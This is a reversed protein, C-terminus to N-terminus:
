GGIRVSTPQCELIVAHLRFDELAINPNTMQDDNMTIRIQIANGDVALYQPRWVRDQYQDFPYYTPDYPSTELVGSSMLQGPIATNLTSFKSTNPYYDVQVQGGYPLQTNPDIGGTRDVLFTMKQIFVNQGQKVYPNWQKSLININSVRAVTGTGLYTSGGTFPFAAVTITNADVISQIPTIVGNLLPFSGTGQINELLVYEDQNTNIDVDTLNHNYITLTVVDGLSTANAIELAGANRTLDPDILLVYGEQNGGIVFRFNQQLSGDAWTQTMNQWLETINGWTAAPGQTFYGFSTFSDTNYSWSETIYNYVAVQNPFVSSFPQSVGIFPICWYVQESKYDRIGEIRDAGNNVYQIDFVDDPINEDIRTVANGTCKTFGNQAIDLTKEDFPVPSFTSQSGFEANLQQWAFPLQQNGTYVLEWKSRAFGVILRDKLFEASVIQEQTQLNDIYGGGRFWPSNKNDIWPLYSMNVTANGTDLPTGSAACYRARNQYLFTNGNQVEITNLMVMRDHFGVIIRAQEITGTANIYTGDPTATIPNFNNWKFSTDLYRMFNTENENFNSVFLYSQDLNVGQYTYGFFKQSNSGLWIEAGADNFLPLQQWGDPTFQYAFQTDFAITYENNITNTEWTILGMVPETPYWWVKTGNPALSGTLVYAGGATNFTALNNAVIPALPNTINKIFGIMTHAGATTVTYVEVYIVGAIVYTMYFSQGIHFKNGPLAAPMDFTGASVALRSPYQEFGAPYANVPIMYRSGFRKRIYERYVYANNLQEYATDALLWPKIRNEMGVRENAILFRELPM